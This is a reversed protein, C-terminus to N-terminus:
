LNRKQKLESESFTDVLLKVYVYNSINKIVFSLM